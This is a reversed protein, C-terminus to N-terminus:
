IMKPVWTQKRPMKNRCVDVGHGIGHCHNCLKPIWEDTIGVCVESDLENQFTILNPFERGLTVGM